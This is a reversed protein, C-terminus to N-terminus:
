CSRTGGPCLPASRGLHHENTTAAKRRQACDYPWILALTVLYAPQASRRNVTLRRNVTVRSRLLNATLAVLQCASLKAPVSTRTHDMAMSLSAHGVAPLGMPPPLIPRM